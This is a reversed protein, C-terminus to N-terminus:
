GADLTLELATAQEMDHEEEEDEDEDGEEEMALRRPKEEQDQALAAAVASTKAPPLLTRNYQGMGLHTPRSFQSLFEWVLKSNLKGKNGFYNHGGNWACRIVPYEGSAGCQKGWCYLDQVGDQSTPWHKAAESGDCGNAPEWSAFIDDTTSYIWGENSVAGKGYSTDNVPVTQDQTGTCDLVGM